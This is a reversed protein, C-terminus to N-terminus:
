GQIDSRATSRGLFFACRGGTFMREPLIAHQLIDVKQSQLDFFIIAINEDRDGKDKRVRAISMTSLKFKVRHLDLTKNVDLFLVM